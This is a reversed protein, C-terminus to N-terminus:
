QSKVKKKKTTYVKTGLFAAEDLVAAMVFYELHVWDQCLSCKVCKIYNDKMVGECETCRSNDAM